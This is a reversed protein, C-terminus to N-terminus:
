AARPTAQEVELGPPALHLPDGPSRDVNGSFKWEPDEGGPQDVGSPEEKNSTSCAVVVVELAAHAAGSSWVCHRVLRYHGLIMDPAGPPRPSAQPPGKAAAIHGHVSFEM